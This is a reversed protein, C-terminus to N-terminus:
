RDQDDVEERREIAVGVVFITQKDKKDDLEINVSTREDGRVLCREGPWPGHTVVCGLHSAEYVYKVLVYVNQFKSMHM